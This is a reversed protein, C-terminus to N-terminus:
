KYASLFMFQFFFRHKERLGFRSNKMAKKDKCFGVFTLFCTLILFRFFLLNLNQPLRLIMDSLTYFSYKLCVFFRQRVAEFINDHRLDEMDDDEKWLVLVRTQYLRM